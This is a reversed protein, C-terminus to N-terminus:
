MKFKSGLDCMYISTRKKDTAEKYVMDLYDAGDTHHDGGYAM